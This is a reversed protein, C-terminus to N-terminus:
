KTREELSFENDYNLGDNLLEHKALDFDACGWVAKVRYMKKKNVIVYMFGLQFLYALQEPTLVVDFRLWLKPKSQWNCDGTISEFGTIDWNSSTLEGYPVGPGLIEQIRQRLHEKKSEVSRVFRSLDVLYNM